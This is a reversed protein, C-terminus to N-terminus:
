LRKQASPSRSNNGCVYQFVIENRKRYCIKFPYFLLHQDPCVPEAGTTKQVIMLVPEIMVCIFAQGAHAHNITYFRHWTSCQLLQAPKLLLVIAPDKTM